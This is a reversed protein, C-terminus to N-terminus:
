HIRPLMYSISMRENYRGLSVRIEEVIIILMSVCDFLVLCLNLKLNVDVVVWMIIYNIFCNSVMNMRLSKM